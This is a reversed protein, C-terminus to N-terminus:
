KAAKFSVTVTDDKTVGTLTYKPDTTGSSEGKLEGKLDSVVRDIEYGQGAQVSFVIFTSPTVDNITYEDHIVAFEAKYM